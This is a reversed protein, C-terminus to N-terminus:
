DLKDLLDCEEKQQKKKEKKKSNNRLNTCTKNNNKERGNKEISEWNQHLNAELWLFVYNM